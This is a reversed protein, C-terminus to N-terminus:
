MDRTCNWVRRVRESAVSDEFVRECEFLRTRLIMLFLGDLESAGVRAQSGLDFCPPPNENSSTHLM